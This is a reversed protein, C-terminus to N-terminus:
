KQLNTSPQTISGSTRNVSQVRGLFERGKNEEDSESRSQDLPGGGVRRTVPLSMKNVPQPVRKEVSGLILRIGRSVWVEVRREKDVGIWGSKYMNRELQSRGPNFLSHYIKSSTQSHTWREEILKM